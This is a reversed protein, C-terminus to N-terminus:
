FLIANTIIYRKVSFVRSLFATLPITVIEAILYATSIWSGEDVGAGLAGQINPLSSNTIQIDLVAMFAGVASGIVAIWNKTPVKEESAQKHKIPSASTSM